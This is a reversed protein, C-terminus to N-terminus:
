DRRPEPKGSWGPVEMRTRRLNLRPAFYRYKVITMSLVGRVNTGFSTPEATSLALARVRSRSPPRPAARSVISGHGGAKRGLLDVLVTPFTIDKRDVTQRRLLHAVIARAELVELTLLTVCEPLERVEHAGLRMQQEGPHVFQHAMWLHQIRHLADDPRVHQEIVQGRPELLGILWRVNGPMLVARIEAQFGGLLDSGPDRESIRSGLHAADFEQWSCMHDTLLPM